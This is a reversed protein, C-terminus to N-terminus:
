KRHGQRTSHRDDGRPENGRHEGQYLRHPRRDNYYRRPYNYYYPYYQNYPYYPYDQYYPDDYYYYYDDRPLKKFSEYPDYSDRDDNSDNQITLMQVYPQSSRSDSFSNEQAIIISGLLPMLAFIFLKKNLM